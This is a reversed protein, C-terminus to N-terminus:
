PKRKLRIDGLDHPHSLRMSSNFHIPESHFVIQADECMIEVVYLKDKPNIVFLQKFASVSFEIQRSTYRLRELQQQNKLLLDIKCSTYPQNYEDFVRGKVEAFSDGIFFCASLPATLLALFIYKLM